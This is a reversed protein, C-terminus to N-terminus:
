SGDIDNVALYRCNMFAFRSVYEITVDLLFGTDNLDRWNFLVLATNSSATAPTNYNLGPM